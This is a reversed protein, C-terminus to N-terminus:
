EDHHNRKDALASIGMGCLVLAMASFIPAPYQGTRPNEEEYRALLAGSSIEPTWLIGQSRGAAFCLVAALILALIGPLRRKRKYVM